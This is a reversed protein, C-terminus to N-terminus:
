ISLKKMKYSNEKINEAYFSWEWHMRLRYNDDDANPMLIEFSALARNQKPILIISADYFMELEDAPMSTDVYIAKITNKGVQIPSKLVQVPWGVTPPVTWNIINVNVKDAYLKSIRLAQATWTRIANVQGGNDVVYKFGLDIEDTTLDWNVIKVNDPNKWNIVNWDKDFKNEIFFPLWGAIKIEKSWVTAKKRIYSSAISNLQNSYDMVWQKLLEEKIKPFDWNNTEALSWSIESSVRIIQTYNFVNRPKKIGWRTSNKFGEEEAIAKWIAFDWVALTITNDWGLLIVKFETDSVISEVIVTISWKSKKDKDQFEVIQWVTLGNAWENVEISKATDGFYWSTIATKIILKVPTYVMEKRELKIGTIKQEWTNKLAIEWLLWYEKMIQTTAHLVQRQVDVSVTKKVPM